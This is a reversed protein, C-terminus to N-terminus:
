FYRCRYHTSDLAAIHKTESFLIKLKIIFLMTINIMYISKSRRILIGQLVGKLPHLSQMDLIIACKLMKEICM